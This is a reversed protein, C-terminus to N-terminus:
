RGGRRYDGLDGGEVEAEEAREGELDEWEDKRESV